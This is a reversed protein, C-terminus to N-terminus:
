GLLLAGTGAAAIAGTGVLARRRLSGSGLAVVLACKFLTNALSAIVIAAAATPAAGGDRAFKAMSLTVADVDSLGALAALVLQGQDPFRQQVVKFLVLVVAFVLAFKSAQTLSFPSRLPVESGGAPVARLYHLWAIAGGAPAMAAFAPAIDVVLAPYVVLVEIVVRVFM